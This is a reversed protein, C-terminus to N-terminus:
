TSLVMWTHISRPSLDLLVLLLRLVFSCPSFCRYLLGFLLGFVFLSPCSFCHFISFLLLGCDGSIGIQCGGVRPILPCRATASSVGVDGGCSLWGLCIIVVYRSPGIM